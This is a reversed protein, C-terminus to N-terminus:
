SESCLRIVKNGLKQLHPVESDGRNSGLTLMEQLEQWPAVPDAADQSDQSAPEIGLGACHTLSRANRCNCSLNCHHSLDSGQGLFEM